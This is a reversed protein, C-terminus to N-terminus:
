AWRERLKALVAALPHKVKWRLHGLKYSFVGPHCLPLPTDVLKQAHLAAFERIHQPVQGRFYGILNQRYWPAIRADNWFAFRLFDCAVFGRARFREHWYDPWQENVHGRGGQHPVAVSVLLTDSLSCMAEVLADARATPLHELLELCVLVDFHEGAPGLQFPLPCQALDITRLDAAPIRLRTRPVWPGDIGRAVKVGCNRFAELWLGNACGIDVVTRPALLEVLRPVLAAASAVVRAERKAFFRDAYTTM